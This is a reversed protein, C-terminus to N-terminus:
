GKKRINWYLRAPSQLVGSLSKRYATVGRYQGLIYYPVVEYLRRHLEDAIRKQEAPETARAFAQRLEEVRADCPWGFVSQDCAAAIFTNSVPSQLGTAVNATVLLSWGGQEPAAKSVRRAVLSSWDTSVMELNIGIGRLARAMVQSHTNLHPIDTAVLMVVKENKYGAEALLQKAKAADPKEFPEAGAKTELPTGCTFYSHCVSWYQRDGYAARLFQEQNLAHIVAQRIKPNDFPPHLHNPRAFAHSGVPDVLEVTVDPSAQLLKILDLPPNEIMDIEGANLAAIAVAYDPMYRWEVRDVHARKGGATNSAPEARPVYDPNRAYVVKAGPIWEEKRFIFPGSGIAEAIQQAPDTLALREPMMFPTVSDVKALADLAFGIRYKLKLVFSREDIAQLSEVAALLARGMGDRAGWRRLSAVCDIARVPAGDHWKLGGRLTFRWILQDPSVEWSEVMQPQPRGEADTGFLTDFVLFGHNRSIYATTWVPDINRLDGIPASRLTVQAAAGAVITASIALAVLLSRLKM